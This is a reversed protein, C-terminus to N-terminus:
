DVGCARPDRVPPRRRLLAMLQGVEGGDAEPVRWCMVMGNVFTLRMMNVSAFSADSLGSPLFMPVRGRVRFLMPGSVDKSYAVLTADDNYYVEKVYDFTDVSPAPLDGVTHDSLDYLHAVYDSGVSRGNAAYTTLLQRSEDFVGDTVGVGGPEVGTVAVVRYEAGPVAEGPLDIPAVGSKLLHRRLKRDRFDWEIVGPMDYSGIFARRPELEDAIVTTLGGDTPEASIGRVCRLFLDAHVTAGMASALVINSGVDEAGANEDRPHPCGAAGIFFAYVGPAPDHITMGAGVTSVLRALEVSLGFRRERVVGDRLFLERVGGGGVVLVTDDRDSDFLAGVGTKVTGMRVDAGDFRTHLLVDSAGESGDDDGFRVRLLADGEETAVVDLTPIAGDDPCLRSPLAAVRTLPGGNRFLLRCGSAAEVKLRGGFVDEGEGQSQDADRDSNLWAGPPATPGSVVTGRPYLEVRHIGTATAAYLSTGDDSYALAKVGDPLRFSRSPRTDGRVVSRADWVSVLDDASIAFADGDPTIAISKSGSLPPAYVGQSVKSWAQPLDAREQDGFRWVDFRVVNARAELAVSVVCLRFSRECAADMFMGDNTAIRSRTGPEGEPSIELPSGAAVLGVHSGLDNADERTRWLLGRATWQIPLKGFPVRAVRGAAWNVRFVTPSRDFGYRGVWVKSGRVLLTFSTLGDAPLRVSDCRALRPACRLVRGTKAYGQEGETQYIAFVGESTVRLSAPTGAEGDVPIGDLLLGNDLLRTALTRATDTTPTIRALWGEGWHVMARQADAVASNQLALQATNLRSDANYFLAAVGAVALLLSTVVAVSLALGRRRRTARRAAMLYERHLTTPASGTKPPTALWVEAEKLASGRLLDVNRQGRTLWRQAGEGIRTHTRMWSIDRSLVRELLAAGRERGEETAADVRVSHIRALGFPVQAWDVDELVLPIVRKGLAAAEEVERECTPSRSSRETLVLVITDSEQIMEVVRNWWDEGFETDELDRLVDFRGDRELRRNLWEAFAVDRRSYSIFIRPAPDRDDAM